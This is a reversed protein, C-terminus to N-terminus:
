QGNKSKAFYDSMLKIGILIIPVPWLNFLTDYLIIDFNALILLFGLVILFAGWFISGTPIIDSGAFAGVGAKAPQGVAAQNIAKAGNIADIIQFFWFGAMTLSIFVIPVAPGDEAAKILTVLIGVFIIMYLFGKSVFGNYITGLGPCMISLIGAAAPSKPPRQQIIIKEDM